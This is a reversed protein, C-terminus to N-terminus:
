IDVAYTIFKRRDVVNKPICIDIYKTYTLCFQDCTEPLDTEHLLNCMGDCLGSM